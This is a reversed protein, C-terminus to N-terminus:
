HPLAFGFTEYVGQGGTGRAGNAYLLTGNGNVTIPGLITIDPRAPVVTTILGDPGIKRIRPNDACDVVYLNGVNDAALAGPNLKAGFARTTDQTDTGAGAVTWARAGNAAVRRVLGCDSYSLWVDGTPAAAISTIVTPNGNPHQPALGSLPIITTTGDPTTRWLDNIFGAQEDEATALTYLTGTFDDLALGRPEPRNGAGTYLKATDAVTSVVGEPDVLRVRGGNMDAIYFSHSRPDIVVDVPRRLRAKRADIGDGDSGGGGAVVTAKGGPSETKLVTGSANGDLSYTLTYLYPTARDDNVAMGTGPAGQPVDKLSILTNQRTVQKNRIENIRDEIEKRKAKKQDDNLNPIADVMQSVMLDILEPDADKLLVYSLAAYYAFVNTAKVTIGVDEFSYIWMLSDVRVINEDTVTVTTLEQESEAGQMNGLLADFATSILSEVGQVLGKDTGTLFGDIMKKLQDNAKDTVQAYVQSEKHYPKAKVQVETLPGTPLSRIRDTFEKIKTQGLKQMTDLTLKVKEREEAKGTFEDLLKELSAM